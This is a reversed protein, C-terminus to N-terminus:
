SAGQRGASQAPDTLHFFIPQPSRNAIALVSWFHTIGIDAGSASLVLTQGSPASIPLMLHTHSFM